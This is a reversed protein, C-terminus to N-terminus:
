AGTRTSSITSGSRSLPRSPTKSTSSPSRGEPQTRTSSCPASAPIKVSRMRCIPSSMMCTQTETPPLLWARGVDVGAITGSGTITHQTVALILEAAINETFFYSIDFEPVASDSINVSAGPIQNINASADPIVGLARLRFMWPGTNGDEALAAGGASFILFAAMAVSLHWTKATATM